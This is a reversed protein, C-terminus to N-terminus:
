YQSNKYNKYDQMCHFLDFYINTNMMQMISSADKITSMSDKLTSSSNLALEQASICFM